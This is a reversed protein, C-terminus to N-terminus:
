PWRVVRHLDVQATLEDSQKRSIPDLGILVVQLGAQRAYAFAPILDTDATLVAIRDVAKNASFSAIDLGLQMDVGKQEFNPKFDADTAAVGAVKPEWGRFKLTGRRVAFFDRRAVDDLWRDSGSFEKSGGSIPLTVTGVFPPCEYLIARFLEEDAALCAKAVQEVLEADYDRGAGRAWVRLCGGDILLGLRKM